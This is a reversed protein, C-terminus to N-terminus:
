RKQALESVEDILAGIKKKRAESGTAKDHDMLQRCSLLLSLIGLQPNVGPISDDEEGGSEVTAPASGAPTVPTAVVPPASGTLVAKAVELIINKRATYPDQDQAVLAETIKVIDAHFMVPRDGESAKVPTDKRGERAKILAKLEPDKMVTEEIRRVRPPTLKNSM